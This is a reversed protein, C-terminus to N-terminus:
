LLLTGCYSMKNWNVRKGPWSHKNNNYIMNKKPLLFHDLSVFWVDIQLKMLKYKTYLSSKHGVVGRKKKNYNASNANFKIFNPWYIFPKPSVCTLLTVPSRNVYSVMCDCRGWGTVFAKSGALKSELPILQISKALSSFNYSIWIINVMKHNIKYQYQLM